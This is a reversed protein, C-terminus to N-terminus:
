VAALLELARQALVAAGDTNDDSRLADRMSQRKTADTLLECLPTLMRDANAVPDVADDLMVAGGADVLPQANLKQHQDRHFPYPLFIAPVANVAIEAVSGAGARSITVDAAGWALGMTNCFDVCTAPIGTGGYMALLKGAEDNNGALHYVQWGDIAKRFADRKTLEIMAQNISQAGQSAGTVFLVPKDPDLGLARRAEAPDDPGICSRRVPLAIIRTDAPMQNSPYVSFHETAKPILWRNAKGPVADLNVLMVPVGARRAVAVPPASVFGGTSIILRVNRDRILQLAQRKARAYARLFPLARWPKRLGPLPQVPLPTFDVGADTLIRRDIDRQSAVFHVAPADAGGDGAREALREAVAICPFLHGGTGGGAFLITPRADNM